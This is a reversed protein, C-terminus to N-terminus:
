PKLPDQCLEKYLLIQINSNNSFEFTNSDWNQTFQTNIMWYEYEYFWSLMLTLYNILVKEKYSEVSSSRVYRLLTRFYFDNNTSLM